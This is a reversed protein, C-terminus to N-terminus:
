AVSEDIAGDVLRVQRGARAAFGSDHTVMVITTGDEQNTEQLLKIVAEGNLSDLNGTPEDAFLYAPKLILARAIAVRQQEGGSLQSPFKERQRVLDLRSLLSEARVRIEPTVRSKTAPMLINEITSLEALLYHFQFVFGITQNRFAHLSHSSMQAIDQGRIIVKGSTPHDLTSMCYLLTSKGSGSRGTLAVFEGDNVTHNINKLIRTPPVGFSKELNQCEISM